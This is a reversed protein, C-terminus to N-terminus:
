RFERQIFAILDLHENAAAMERIRSDRWEDVEALLEGEPTWFQRVRRVPDRDNGLGRREEMDIVQILKAM